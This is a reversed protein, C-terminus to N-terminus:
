FNCSMTGFATYVTLFHEQPHAFKDGSVHLASNFLNISSFTTADPQNNVDNFRFNEPLVASIEIEIRVSYRGFIFVSRKGEETNATVKSVIQCYFM